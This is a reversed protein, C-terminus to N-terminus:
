PRLAAPVADDPENRVVAFALGAAPWRHPIGGIRARSESHGLQTM